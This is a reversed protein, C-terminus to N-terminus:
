GGQPRDSDHLPVPRVVRHASPHNRNALEADTEEQTLAALGVKVRLKYLWFTAAGLSALMYLFVARYTPDFGGDRIVNPHLSQLLRPLVFILLMSPLFSAALYAACYQSRQEKGEFAARLPFYAGAILVVLLFSTQRPDWNWYAGWQVRAFVMGTILTLLGLLSGLELCAEMKVDLELSPRRLYRIALIGGYGLFASCLLACPLHWFVMRALSKDQFATTVDPAAFTLATGIAVLLGILGIGLKKSWGSRSDSNM